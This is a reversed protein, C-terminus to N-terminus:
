QKAEPNRSPKLNRALKKVRTSAKHARQADLLFDRDRLLQAIRERLHANQQASQRLLRRLAPADLLDPSSTSKDAFFDFPPTDSGQPTLPKM